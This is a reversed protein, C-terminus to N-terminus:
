ATGDCCLQERLQSTHSPDRFRDGLLSNRRPSPHLPAAYSHNPTRYGCADHM